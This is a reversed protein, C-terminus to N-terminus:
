NKEEIWHSLIKQITDINKDLSKLRFSIVKRHDENELLSYIHNELGLLESALNNFEQYLRDLELPNIKNLHELSHLTSIFENVNAEIVPDFDSGPYKAKSFLSVFVRGIEALIDQSSEKFKLTRCGIYEQLSSSLRNLLEKIEM